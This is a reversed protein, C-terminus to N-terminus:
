RASRSALYETALAVAREPNGAISQAEERAATTDWGDEIVRGIMWLAAVRTASGCHIYVPQNAPDGVLSLFEDILGPEPDNAQFPLHIYNLGAAEAAARSAEIDVGQETALRLNIVSEFGAQKLWPMASPQTTGGFGVLSGGFGATEELQSFNVIGPAESKTVHPTSKEGGCAAATAIAAAVVIVRPIM